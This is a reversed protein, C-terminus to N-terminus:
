MLTSFWKKDIEQLIFDTKLKRLTGFIFDDTYHLGIKNLEDTIEETKAGQTFEGETQLNIKFIIEELKTSLEIEAPTYLIKNIKEIVTSM